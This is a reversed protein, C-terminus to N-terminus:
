DEYVWEINLLSRFDDDLHIALEKISEDSENIDNVLKKFSTDKSIDGRKILKDIYDKLWVIIERDSKIQWLLNAVMQWNEENTKLLNAEHQKIISIIEMKDNKNELKDLKEIIDTDDYEFEPYEKNKIEELINLIVSLDIDKPKYDELLERLKKIERYFGDSFWGIAGRMQSGFDEKNSYYDLENHGTLYRSTLNDNWGDIKYTYLKSKDYDTFIYVYDGAGVDTMNTTVVNIYVSNKEDRQRITIIPSLGTKFWTDDAFTESIIYQAM